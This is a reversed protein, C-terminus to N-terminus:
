WAEVSKSLRGRIRDTAQRRWAQGALKPEAWLAWLLGFITGEHILDAMRRQVRGHIRASSELGMYSTLFMTNDPFDHM